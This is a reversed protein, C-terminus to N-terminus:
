LISGPNSTILTAAAISLISMHAIHHSSIRFIKRRYLIFFDLALLFAIFTIITLGSTRMFQFSDIRTKTQSSSISPSFSGILITQKALEEGKVVMDKGSITVSPALTAQPIQEVGPVTNQLDTEVLAVYQTSTTGFMQVVLTTEQGNLIGNVVAIGIDKYKSNLLNDRHAPSDMWASVVDESSYFNKALNEGAFSFRYGSSTIFDWPTKGSPAFHAWYNEEFMNQAKLAAAQDLDTNESVPPLNNKQRETNTLEILKQQSINGTIGLVGPKAFSLVSFGVQLLMFILVYILLAEWSILYAKKHTDKHPIIWHHFRHWSV